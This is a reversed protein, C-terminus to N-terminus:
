LAPTPSSCNPNGVNYRGYVLTFDAQIVAGGAPLVSVSYWGGVPTNGIKVLPRDITSNRNDNRYVTGNSAVVVLELDASPIVDIIDLRLCEGGRAYIEGVWPAVAAGSRLITADIQVSSCNITSCTSVSPDWMNSAAAPTSVAILATLFACKYPASGKM